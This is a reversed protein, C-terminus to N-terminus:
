VKKAVTGLKKCGLCDFVHAQYLMCSFCGSEMPFVHGRLRCLRVMARYKKCDFCPVDVDVCAVAVAEKKRNLFPFCPM